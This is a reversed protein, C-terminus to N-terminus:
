RGTTFFYMDAKCAVGPIRLSTLVAIDRNSLMCMFVSSVENQNSQSDQSNSEVSLSDGASGSEGGILAKVTKSTFDDFFSM